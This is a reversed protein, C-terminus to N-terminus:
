AVVFSEWSKLAPMCEAQYAPLGGAWNLQERKKGPINAGMYWSDALPLVSKNSITNIKNKWEAEAEAKPEIYKLGEERVKRIMSVIWHAQIEICSPGNSFATPGHAGYLFFMNPYGHHCMGLYTLVGDKWKEELPRGHVDRLGLSVMSGTISDYGTALVIIDLPYFSGDSILIGDPRIEEITHKRLDVVDVNPQNFIEYYNQELSPRKTGFPHIPELPALIDRKRPDKIRERTKKAWFDYAHRNAELGFLMDGYGGLWFQFGGNTWLQEFFAEREKATADATHKELFTYRMGGFTQLRNRYFEPYTPKRSEQEEPTLKGQRMPLALNPTRQFVLLSAADKACEQAIQVGTAGTGIIGVRKGKTQVGEHPWCSSHYVKGKFTEIGKFPPVYRKAAFGTAPIFFQCTTTRGDDTEIKWVKETMDFQAGIVRMNFDVDRKIDWVKGVHDFYKLIEEGAPYKETWTWDKWVESESYEYVPVESDVRIGPYANWYWIGGLAAEAEYVKCNMGMKRLQYLMYVGSFGAGVILVDYHPIPISGM